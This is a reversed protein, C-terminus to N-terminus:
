RGRRPRVTGGPVRSVQEVSQLQVEGLEPEARDRLRSVSVRGVGRRAARELRPGDGLEDPRPGAGASGPVPAAGVVATAWRYPRPGGTITVSANGHALLTPSSM